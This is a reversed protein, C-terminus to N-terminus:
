LPRQKIVPMWICNLRLDWLEYPIIPHLIRRLYARVTPIQKSEIIPQSILKANFTSRAWNVLYKM